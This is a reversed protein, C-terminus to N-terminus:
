QIQLNKSGIFANYKRRNSIEIRYREKSDNDELDELFDWSDEASKTDDRGFNQPEHQERNAPDVNVKSQAQPPPSMSCISPQSLAIKQFVKGLVDLCQESQSSQFRLFSEAIPERQSTSWVKHCEAPPSQPVCCAKEM